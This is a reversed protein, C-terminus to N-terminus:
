RPAGIRENQELQLGIEAYRKAIAAARPHHIKGFKRSLMRCIEPLNRKVFDAEEVRLASERSDFRYSQEVFNISSAPWDSTNLLPPPNRCWSLALIILRTERDEKVWWLMQVWDEYGSIWLRIISGWSNEPEFFGSARMRDLDLDEKSLQMKESLVNFTSNMRMELQGLSLETRDVHVAIRSNQCCSCLAFVLTLNVALLRTPVKGLIMRIASKRSKRDRM